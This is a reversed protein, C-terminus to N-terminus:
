LKESGPKGYHKTGKLFGNCTVRVSGIVMSSM